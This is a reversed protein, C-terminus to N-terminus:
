SRRGYKARTEEICINVGAARAKRGEDDRYKESRSVGSSCCNAIFSLDLKVGFVDSLKELTKITPNCRRPNELRQYAQASIGMKQAIFEQSSNDRLRRLLYAVAIHPRVKVAHFNKKTYIKEDPLSSGRSFDAELCGNLAEEAYKLAEDLTKGYTNINPFDPFSVEYADDTKEIYACYNM